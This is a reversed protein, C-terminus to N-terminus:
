WRDDTFLADILMAKGFPVDFCSIDPVPTFLTGADVADTSLELQFTEALIGCARETEPLSQYFTRPAVFKDGERRQLSSYVVHVSALISVMGVVAVADKTRSAEQLTLGKTVFDTVLAGPISARLLRQMEARFQICLEATM